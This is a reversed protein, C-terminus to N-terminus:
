LGLEKERAIVMEYLSTCKYGMAHVKSWLSDPGSFALEGKACSDILDAISQNKPVLVVEITM